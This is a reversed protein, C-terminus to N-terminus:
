RTLRLTKISQAIERFATRLEEESNADYYYTTNSTNTSACAQLTVKADAPANFAISYIEIGDATGKDAKMDNCIAKASYNSEVITPNTDRPDGEFGKFYTNFSGDTMLIAIKKAKSGYNDPKSTNPWLNQWKESLMYYGWSIGLHGATYGDAALASIDSKLTTANSTLPRVKSPSCNAGAIASVYEQAYSVDSYPNVQRETMCKNSSQGSAKTVLANDLRVGESYPVLGLRVQSNNKGAPLLIDVADKAALKLSDLKGDWAMSGTVDLVMSIEVPNTSFKAESSTKVPVYQYGLIGMFSMQVPTVLKAKIEGTTEDATFEQVTVSNLLSPHGGLNAYLHNEFLTRLNADAKAGDVLENGAALVAADLSNNVISQARSIQTYDVAAGITLFLAVASVGFITAFAGDENKTFRNALRTANLATASKNFRSFEKVLSKM